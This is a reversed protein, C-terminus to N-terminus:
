IYRAFRINKYPSKPDCNKNVPTPPVTVGTSAASSLRFRVSLIPAPFYLARSLAVFAITSPKARIVNLGDVQPFAFSIRERQRALLDCFLIVVPRGTVLLIDRLADSGRAFAEGYPTAQAARFVKQDWIHTVLCPEDYLEKTQPSRVATFDAVCFNADVSEVIKITCRDIYTLRSLLQPNSNAAM